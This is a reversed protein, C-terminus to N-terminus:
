KHRQLKADKRVADPDEVTVQLAEDTEIGLDDYQAQIAHTRLTHITHVRCPAARPLRGRVKDVQLADAIETFLRKRM